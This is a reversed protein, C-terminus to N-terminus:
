PAPQPTGWAHVLEAYLPSRALVETHSGLVPQGGDMLLVRDARVASSLRHAIVVLTGGRDAMAQEVVAEAAPDLHCTAEDLVVIRAASVHVRAAALLQREGASLETGGHGVRGGLGGLRTVLDAAGVACAAATLEPDSAEPRLYALNERVTGTFVYAEQPVLTVLERLQDAAIDRVPVGGLLVSGSRPSLVGTILAALTSKGIGSPGIVALHTNEPVTLDLGAVVPTADLSWGFTLDRVTIAHGFPVQPEGPRAQQVPARDGTLRRLTVALRLVSSGMTVLLSHLAPQVSTTLYTVAGAVAGATLQGSRVLGPALLLVLALPVIGGLAVLLIRVAGARALRVAAEQQRAIETDVAARAVQQAGCAAVDRLGGYVGGVVRAAQEDAVAVARQRAVLTRLLVAFLVLAAAIPAAVPLALQPATSLLGALAAVTTVVFARGQVLLGATVDRVVEVHRTIRAVVAADPTGGGHLVGRVVATVLEDRVPEVVSGLRHFVQRSGLAGLASLAGFLGLWGLGRWLSGAAFGQDIALSVLRGSLFAPVGELLSWLALVLLARRTRGLAALYERM